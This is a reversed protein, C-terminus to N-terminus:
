AARADGIGADQDAIHEQTPEGVHEGVELFDPMHNLASGDFAHDIEVTPVIMEVTSCVGFGDVVSGTLINVFKAASVIDVQCSAAYDLVVGHGAALTDVGVIRARGRHDDDDIEISYLM